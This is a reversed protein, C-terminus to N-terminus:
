RFQRSGRAAPDAGEAQLEADGGLGDADGVHVRMLQAV